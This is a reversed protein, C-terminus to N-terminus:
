IHLGYIEVIISRSSAYRIGSADISHSFSWKGNYKRYVRLNYYSSEILVEQGNIICKRLCTSSTKQKPPYQQRYNGNYNKTGFNNGLLIKHILIYQYALETRRYGPYSCNNQDAFSYLWASQNTAIYLSNNFANVGM